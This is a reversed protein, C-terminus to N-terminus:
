LSPANFESDKILKKIQGSELLGNISGVKQIVQAGNLAGWKLAENVEKGHFIASVFGSAFADGAGTMDIVNEVGRVGQKFIKDGDMTCSGNTSDTIVPMKVGLKSFERVYGEADLDKELIEEAEAMNVFLIDLRNFTERLAPINTRLMSSGPNMAFIIDSNNKLYDLLKGQFKEFGASLSTYYLIKPRPWNQLEYETKAHYSFITREGKFVIIPHVNTESNKNQICYETEIDHEKLTKIILDGNSDKGVETYVAVNLGLQKAGIAVNAANGAVNTNFKNVPIKDAYSFCINCNEHNIDCHIAAEDVEMFLDIATDGITLLDIKSM